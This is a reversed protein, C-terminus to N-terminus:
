FKVGQGCMVPPKLVNPNSYCSKQYLTCTHGRLKSDPKMCKKKKKKRYLGCLRLLLQFGLLFRNKKTKVLSAMLWYEMFCKNHSYQQLPMNLEGKLFSCFSTHWKVFGQWQVMFCYLISLYKLIVESLVVKSIFFYIHFIMEAYTILNGSKSRYSHIGCDIEVLVWQIVM